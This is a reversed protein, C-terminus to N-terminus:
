FYTKERTNKLVEKPISLYPGLLQSAWGMARHCNGGETAHSAALQVHRVCKGLPSQGIGVAVVDDIGPVVFRESLKTEVM